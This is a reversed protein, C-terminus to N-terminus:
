PPEFRNMSMIVKHLVSNNPARLGRERLPLVMMGLPFQVIDNYAFVGVLQIRRLNNDSVTSKCLRMSHRIPICLCLGFKRCLHTEVYDM